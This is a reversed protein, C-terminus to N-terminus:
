DGEQQYLWKGWGQNYLDIGLETDDPMLTKHNRVNLIITTMETTHQTITKMILEMAEDSINMGESQIINHVHKEIGNMKVEM